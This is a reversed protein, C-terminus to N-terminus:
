GKEPGSGVSLAEAEVKLIIWIHKGSYKKSYEETMNHICVSEMIVATFDDFM